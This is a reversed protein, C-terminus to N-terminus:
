NVFVDMFRAINNAAIRDDLSYFQLQQKDNGTIFTYKMKKLIRFSLHNISNKGYITPPNKM